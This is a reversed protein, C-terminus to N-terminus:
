LVDANLQEMAENAYLPERASLSHIKGFQSDGNRERTDLKMALNTTLWKDVIFNDLQMHIRKRACHPPAM